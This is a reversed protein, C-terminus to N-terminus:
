EREELTKACEVAVKSRPFPETFPDSERHLAVGVIVFCVGALDRVSPVQALV